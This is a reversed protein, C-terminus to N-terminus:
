HQVQIAEMLGILYSPDQSFRQVSISKCSNRLIDDVKHEVGLFLVANEGEMLTEDIRYAMFLDRPTMMDPKEFVQRRRFEDYAERSETTVFKTGRELLRFFADVNRDKGKYRGFGELFEDSPREVYSAEQYVTTFTNAELFADVGDWYSKDGGVIRRVVDPDPNEGFSYELREKEWAGWPVHVIPIQM